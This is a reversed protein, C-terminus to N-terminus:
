YFEMTVKLSIFLNPGMVKLSFRWPPSSPGERKGDGDRMRVTNGFM